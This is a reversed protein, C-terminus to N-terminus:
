KFHFKLHVESVEPCPDSSNRVRIQTEKGNSEVVSDLYLYGGM